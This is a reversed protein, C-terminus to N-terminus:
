SSKVRSSCATVFAPSFPALSENIMSRSIAKITLTRLRVTIVASLPSCACFLTNVFISEATTAYDSHNLVDRLSLTPGRGATQLRLRGAPSGGLILLMGVSQRISESVVCNREPKLVPAHLHTDIRNHQPSFQYFM